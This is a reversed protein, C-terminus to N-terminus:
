KEELKWTDSTIEEPLMTVPGMSCTVTRWVARWCGEVLVAERAYYTVGGSVAEIRKRRNNPVITAGDETPLEQAPRYPNAARIREADVDNINHISWSAADDWGQERAAEVAADANWEAHGVNYAARLLNVANARRDATMTRWQGLYVPAHEGWLVAAREETLPHDTM